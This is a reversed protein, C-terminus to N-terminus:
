PQVGVAAAPTDANRAPEIAPSNVLETLLLKAFELQPDAGAAYRIDRDIHYDPKIPHGELESKFGPLMLYGDQSITRLGGVATVHGVTPTGVLPARGAKRVADVVIEKASRTGVGTLIVIPKTWLPTAKSNDSPNMSGLLFRAAAYWTGGHGDRYDLLLGDVDDQIELLRKYEAGAGLLSWGHLYALPRGNHQIIRVSELMARQIAKHLSEKVPTLEVSYVLGPRRRLVIEVAREAKGRFSAVQRYPEGDVSLLEDGVRIPAADAPSGELIGSVFWRGDIKRPYVGIHAVHAAEGKGGFASLLEWYGLQEDTYYSFHSVGGAKFLNNIRIRFQEHTAARELGDRHEALLSDWKAPGILKPANSRAVHELVAALRAKAGVAEFRDKVPRAEDAVSGTGALLIASLALSRCMKLTEFM